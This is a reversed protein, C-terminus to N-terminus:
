RCYEKYNWEAKSILIVVIDIIESVTHKMQIVKYFIDNSSITEKLSLKTKKLFKDVMKMNQFLNTESETKMDAMKLKQLETM